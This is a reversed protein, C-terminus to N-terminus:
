QFYFETLYVGDIKDGGLIENIKTRVKEKFQIKGEPQQLTEVEESSVTNVLMEEISAAHEPMELERQVSPDRFAVTMKLIVYRQVEANPINVVLPKRGGRADWLRSLDYFILNPKAPSEAKAAPLQYPALMRRQTMADRKAVGWQAIELALPVYEWQRATVLTKLTNFSPFFTMVVFALLYLSLRVLRDATRINEVRSQKTM